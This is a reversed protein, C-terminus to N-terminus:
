HTKMYETLQETTMNPGYKKQAALIKQHDNAVRSAMRKM